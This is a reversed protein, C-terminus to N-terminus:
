SCRLASSDTNFRCTCFVVLLDGNFYVSVVTASAASARAAVGKTRCETEGCAPMQCDLEDCQNSASPDSGAGGHGPPPPPNIASPDAGGGGHGSPPSFVIWTASPDAGGGGHGSPPSLVILIASPDAGGGGHGSPPSFAIWTASPDAGGGGHGSPPRVGIFEYGDRGECLHGFPCIM